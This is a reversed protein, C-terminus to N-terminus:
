KSLKAKGSSRAKTETKAEVSAEAKPEESVVVPKAAQRTRKAEPIEQGASYWMGNVKINHTAIMTFGREIEGPFAGSSANGPLNM